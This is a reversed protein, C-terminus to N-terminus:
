QSKTQKAEAMQREGEIKLRNAEAIGLQLERQVEAARWVMQNETKTVSELKKMLDTSLRTTKAKFAIM